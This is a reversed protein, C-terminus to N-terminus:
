PDDPEVNSLIPTHNNAKQQGQGMVGMERMLTQDLTQLVRNAFQFPIEIVQDVVSKVCLTANDFAQRTINVADDVVSDLRTVTDARRMEQNIRSRIAERIGDTANRQNAIMRTTASYFSDMLRDMAQKREQIASMILKLLRTEPQAVTATPGDREEAFALSVTFSFVFLIFSARMRQKIGIAFRTSVSHDLALLLILRAVLERFGALNLHDHNQRELYPEILSCATFISLGELGPQQEATFASQNAQKQARVEDWVQSKVKSHRKNSQPWRRSADADPTAPPVRLQDRM